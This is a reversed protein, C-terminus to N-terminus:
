SSLCVPHWLSTFADVTWTSMSMLHFQYQGSILFIKIRSWGPWSLLHPWRQNYIFMCRSYKNVDQHTPSIVSLINSFLIQSSWLVWWGNYDRKLHPEPSFYWAHRLELSKVYNNRSTERVANHSTLPRSWCYTCHYCFRSCQLSCKQLPPCTELELQKCLLM